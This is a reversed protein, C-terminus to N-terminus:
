LRPNRGQVVRGSALQAVVYQAEPRGYATMSIVRGGVDGGAIVEFTDTPTAIDYGDARYQYSVQYIGLGFELGLLIPLAFRMPGGDMALKFPGRVFGGPGAITATPAAEPEAPGGSRDFTEVAPIVVQGVQYRGLDM